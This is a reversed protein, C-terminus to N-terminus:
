DRRGPGPQERRDKCGACGVCGSSGSCSASGACSSCDGCCRGRRRWATRLAAGVALLLLTILFLDIPQM